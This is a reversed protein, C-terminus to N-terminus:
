KSNRRNFPIDLEAFVYEEPVAYAVSVYRVTMWPAIADISAVGRDLGQERIYQWQQYSRYSRMAYIGIVLLGIVIFATALFQRNSLLQRIRQSLNKM